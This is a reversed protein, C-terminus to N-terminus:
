GDAAPRCGEKGLVSELCHAVAEAQRYQNQHSWVAEPASCKGMSARFREELSVMQSGEVCKDALFVLSDETLRSEEGPSLRHHAAVIQALRDYGEGRLIRGGQTAHDPKTRAIDHLFAAEYTLERDIPLGAEALRDAWMGALEAVAQQHERVLQPVQFRDWLRFCEARGPCVAPRIGVHSFDASLSGAEAQLRSVTGCALPIDMIHAPDWNLLMCILGRAAGSHTVLVLDGETQSLLKEIASRLRAGGQLFSEGGPPAVAGLCRGRQEYLDPYCARIEEFSRGEWDGGNIETLEPDMRVQKKDGTMIAATEACRSLPSSFVRGRDKERYWEALVRAQKRGRRSLPIDERCVCFSGNGKAATEGHRVLYVLRMKGVGMEAPEASDSDLDFSRYSLTITAFFFFFYM